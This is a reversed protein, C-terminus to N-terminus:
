ETSEVDAPETMNQLGRQGYGGIPDLVSLISGGWSTTFILNRLKAHPKETWPDSAYVMMNTFDMPYHNIVSYVQKNNIKVYYVYQGQVFAQGVTLSTWRNVPLRYDSDYAYSVENNIYCAIHLINEGPYFSILPMRDGPRGYNDGSATFHILNIWSYHNQKTPKIDVELQWIRYMNPLITVLHGIEPTYEGDFIVVRTPRYIGWFFDLAAHIDNVDAQQKVSLANISNTLKNDTRFIENAFHNRTAKDATDIDAAMKQELTYKQHTM